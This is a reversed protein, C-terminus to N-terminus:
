AQMSLQPLPYVHLCEVAPSERTGSAQLAITTESMQLNLLYNPAMLGPSSSFLNSQKMLVAPMFLTDHRNMCAFSPLGHWFCASHRCHFRTLIPKIEKYLFFCVVIALCILLYKWGTNQVNVDCPQKLDRPCSNRPVIVLAFVASLVSGVSFFASLATVLYQNEKPVNELILTADTPMSGQSNILLPAIKTLLASSVGVSSGLLFLTICITTFSNSFSALLGFVATFFLTCNFAASRGM